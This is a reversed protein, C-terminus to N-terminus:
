SHIILPKGLPMPPTRPITTCRSSTPLFLWSGTRIFLCICLYYYLLLFIIYYSKACMCFNYANEFSLLYRKLKMEDVNLRRLLDYSEIIAFALPALPKGKTLQFLACIINNTM